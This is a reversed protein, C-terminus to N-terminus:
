PNKDSFQHSFNSSTSLCVFQHTIYERFKITSKLLKGNDTVSRGLNRFPKESLFKLNLTFEYIGLPDLRNVQAYRPIPILHRTEWIRDSTPDPLWVCRRWLNNRRRLELEGSGWNTSKEVRVWLRLFQNPLLCGGVESVLSADLNVFM